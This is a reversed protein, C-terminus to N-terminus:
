YYYFEKPAKKYLPLLWGFRLGCLMDLRQKDDKAMLDYQYGRLGTTFAEQFELGVYFNTMRNQGLYLYGIFQNLSIGGTLRDYGKALEGHIQPINRGVDYINIKHRIYGAGALIMLGSNKNHGLKNIIGGVMGYVNWGRENFRVAGPNGNIDTITGEPTMLNTLTREKVKTGFFYNNEIGFIINKATKYFVPVGVSISPGFRQVLDGQPLQGELHIGVIMLHYISDKLSRSQSVVREGISIFLLILILSRRM